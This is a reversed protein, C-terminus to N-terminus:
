IFILIIVSIIGALFLVDYVDLKEMHLSFVEDM